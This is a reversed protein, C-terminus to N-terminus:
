APVGIAALVKAAADAPDIDGTDIMATAVSEYLQDRAAHEVVPRHDGAGARVSAVAPAARLWVVDRATGIALRGASEDVTSAATAIVSPTPSALAARLSDLELDHLADIGDAAAIEHATRGTLAHLQADNDVFPRGLRPAVLAGVTTKGSGMAGVLVLHDRTRAAENDRVFGEIQEALRAKALPKPQALLAPQVDLTADAVEQYWSGRERALRVFAELPDGDLLPRHDRTIARSALFAPQATLWVVFVDGTRLRARNEGSIVAGGGAAVVTPVPSSLAVRLAGTELARFAAEGEGAFIERV